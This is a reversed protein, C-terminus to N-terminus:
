RRLTAKLRGPSLLLEVADMISRCVIDASRIAAAACGEGAIVAVGIRAAELMLSDNNGNGIAMCEAAGLAKLYEMKELTHDRSSLIEVKVPLSRMQSKVTGFTDATLLHVDVLEALTPLRVKLASDLEGDLAITGNYDLVLHKLVVRGYSPIDLDLM